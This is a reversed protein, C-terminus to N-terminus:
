WRRRMPVTSEVVPVEPAYRALAAAIQARDVGLLVAGVLRDAVARVLEDVRRGQAARRRGVGGAPLACRPWRRTRTPRRATTSTARGRWRPWWPTATRSPSTAPWGRACRRRRCGTPAPWRRPPWRTPRRQAPGAPRVQDTPLLQVPSDAFAHDVLMGDAGGAPGAGPRGPHVGVRRGPVRPWCRRSGHTTSTASRWRQRVQQAARWIAAQGRRLRRLRRAVGPPRRRPQAARRGAPGPHRGTCSSAPCSWRWCTTGTRLPPGPCTWWRTASTASRPPACAPPPSSRRWCPSRPPRATPAPSRWGRRGRGAGRLRWALEPESYVPLGAAQAARSWHHHPPFGPSVVLRRRRHWWAPRAACRRDGRHRRGRGARETAATARRDVVTVVAGRRLLARAAAAGAVGAGAVLSRGARGTSATRDSEGDSTVRGALFDGYFLGLGIAVGIGAIIWFRIVM